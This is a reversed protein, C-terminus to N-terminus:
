KPIRRQYYRILFDWNERVLQRGREEGKVSNLAADPLYGKHTLYQVIEIPCFGSVAYFSIAERKAVHPDYFPNRPDKISKLGSKQVMLGEEPTATLILGAGVKLEELGGAYNYGMSKTLFTDLEKDSSFYMLLEGKSARIFDDYAARKNEKEREKTDELDEQSLDKRDYGIMVGNQWWEGGFRVLACNFLTSGPKANPVHGTSKKFVPFEEHTLIDILYYYIEDEKELYYKRQTRFEVDDFMSKNEDFRYFAAIKAYWEPTTLALLHNRHNFLDYIKQDYAVKDAYDKSFDYKAIQQLVKEEYSESNGYNIYCDFHLWEILKRYELFDTLEEREFDVYDLLRMNCPADECHADLLDFLDWAVVNIGPNEPNILVHPSLRQFLHWLLFNVDEPNIAEDLYEEENIEIFPLPRGYLKRCEKTFANWIGLESVMDELWATFCCAVEKKTEFSPFAEPIPCTDLLNLVENAVKIYYRDTEDVRNYPHYKLWDAPFIKKQKM